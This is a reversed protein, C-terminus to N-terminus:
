PGPWLLLAPSVALRPSFGQGLGFPTMGERQGDGPGVARSIFHPVLMCGAARSALFEAAFRKAQRLGPVSQRVHSACSARSLPLTNVRIHLVLAVFLEVQSIAHISEIM